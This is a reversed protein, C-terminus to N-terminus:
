GARAPLNRLAAELEAAFCRLGEGGPTFALIVEDHRRSGPPLFDLACIAELRTDDGAGESRFELETETAGWGYSTGPTADALARVWRVLRRVEPVTLYAGTVSWHRTGDQASMRVVLWELDWSTLTPLEEDDFEYGLLTM